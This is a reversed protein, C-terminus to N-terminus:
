FSHVIAYILDFVVKAFYIMAFIALLAGFVKVAIKRVKPEDLILTAAIGFAIFCIFVGWETTM